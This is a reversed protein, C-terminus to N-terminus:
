LSTIGEAVYEAFLDGSIASPFQNAMEFARQTAYHVSAAMDEDDENAIDEDSYGWSELLIAIREDIIDQDLEEIM